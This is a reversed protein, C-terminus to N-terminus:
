NKKKIPPAAPLQTPLPTPFTWIPSAPQLAPVAVAPPDPPTWLRDSCASPPRSISYDFGLPSRVTEPLNSHGFFALHRVGVGQEWEYGIAIKIALGSSLDRAPVALRAKQGPYAEVATGVDGCNGHLPYIPTRCADDTVLTYCWGSGGFEDFSANSSIRWNTNNTIELWVVEVEGGYKSPLKEYKTFSLYVSPKQQDILPSNAKRTPSSQQAFCLGALVLTQLILNRVQGNSAAV